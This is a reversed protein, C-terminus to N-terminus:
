DILWIEDCSLGVVGVAEGCGTDVFLYYGGLDAWFKDADAM